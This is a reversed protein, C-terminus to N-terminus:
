NHAKKRFRIFVLFGVMVAIAAAVVAVATLLGGSMTPQNHRATVEPPAYVIEATYREGGQAEHFDMAFAPDGTPGMGLFEVNVSDRAASGAPLFAALRLIEVDHLPAYSISIVHDGDPLSQVPFAFAEGWFYHEIQIDYSDTLVATYIKQDGEIHVHYDEFQPSEPSVGEPPVPGFWFVNAAEPVAVQILAPLEVENPDLMGWVAATYGDPARFMKYQILRFHSVDEPNIDPPSLSPETESAYALTPQMAQLDFPPNVGLLAGGGLLLLLAALCILIRQQM